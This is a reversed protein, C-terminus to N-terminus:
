LGYGQGVASYIRKYQDYDMGKVEFFLIKITDILNQSVRGYQSGDVENIMDEVLTPFDKLITALHSPRLLMLEQRVKCSQNSRDHSNYTPKGYDKFYEDLETKSLVAFHLSKTGGFGKWGNDYIYDYWEVIAWLQPICDDCYIEQTTPDQKALCEDCFFEGCVNCGNGCDMCLNKECKPCKYIIEEDIDVKRECHECQVESM